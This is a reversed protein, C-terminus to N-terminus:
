QVIRGNLEFGTVSAVAGSEWDIFSIRGEPHAQSVFIRRSEALAAISLPPSGLIFDDVLFSGLAIRQAVRLGQADDRLLVFARSGDPTIALPGVDAGTLQLKAFGSALDVVSYGYSRDIRLEIDATPDTDSGAVKTHVVLATRGDPALAVARVSKRLRVTKPQQAGVLDVVVLAEVAAATTYLVALKGDPTVSASGFEADAIKRRTVQAPDSFGAPLAVRVVTSEARLVALAFQGSPDMDLDTVPSGLDLTKVVGSTLDVLRLEGSDERRSIAFKGAPTISVDRALAGSASQLAVLPAVAPGKVASFRVVSIGDETVVFAASGDSAFAVETPRFGVTQAVSVPPNEALNLVSIDQFSGIKAAKGTATTAIARQGSDYWAIVHQGDPAVSLANAGAVVAVSTTVTGATASTRLISADGSGANLVVAVDQGTVTRLVTPTDGVEVSRITLSTSDIVAVTDRRPNAVYVFRAGASPTEFDRREEVEPPKPPVGAGADSAGSIPGSGSASGPGAAGTPRGLAGSTGGGGTSEDSGTANRTSSSAGCGVLAGAALLGVVKSFTNAM